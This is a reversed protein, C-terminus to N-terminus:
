QRPNMATYQRNRRFQESLKEALERAAPPRPDPVTEGMDNIFVQSDNIAHLGPYKVQSAAFRILRIIGIADEVATHAVEENIDARVYCEKTSPPQEDTAPNWYLMSPDICRHLMNVRGFRPVRKLFPRDFGQFNKGAPVLSKGSHGSGFAGWAGAWLEFLGALQEPELFTFDACEPKDRNGIRRLIEANMALAIPNGQIRDHIIYAHFRPLKEVPTVWDDVVAGFEIVQGYDYDTDTTEIDISVYPRRGPETITIEAGGKVEDIYKAEMGMPGSNLRPDTNCYGERIQGRTHFYHGTLDTPHKMPIKM